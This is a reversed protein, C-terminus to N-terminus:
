EDIIVRQDPKRYGYEKFDKRIRRAMRWDKYASYLMGTFRKFSALLGTLAWRTLRWSLIVLGFLIYFTWTLIKDGWYSIRQWLWQLTKYKKM